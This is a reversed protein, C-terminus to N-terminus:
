IGAILMWCIFFYFLIIPYVVLTKREEKVAGTFFGMSAYVAWCWALTCPIIKLLTVPIFFCIFAAVCLPFLCYGLVCVIQFFSLNGGLFQANLTVVASGVSVGTFVGAFTAGKASEAKKSVGLLIALFLCLLLPGWLDWNRLENQNGSRVGMVIKIKRGIASVDRWITTTIPEDLTTSVFGLPADGMQITAM